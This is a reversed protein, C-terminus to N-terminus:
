YNQIARVITGVGVIAANYLSAFVPQTQRRRRAGAPWQSCNYIFAPPINLPTFGVVVDDYRETFRHRQNLSYQYQLFKGKPSLSNCAIDLINDVLASDMISFPLSSVVADVAGVGEEQLIQPLETACAHRLTLRPDQIRRAAEIFVPNIELSILRADPRMLKLIRRTVCGSGLGFEVIVKANAYDIDRVLRNVLVVSSSLIAGSTKINRIHKNLVL